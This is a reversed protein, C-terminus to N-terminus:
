KPRLTIGAFPHSVKPPPIKGATHAPSPKPLRTPRGESVMRHYLTQWDPLDSEEQRWHVVSGEDCWDFIRPMARRHADANRYYQMAAAEEWVTVTWFAGEAENLLRGSLFGKTRTLQRTSRYVHWLFLPLYLPSRIRLRTVSVLTM